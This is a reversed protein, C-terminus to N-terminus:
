RRSIFEVMRQIEDTNEKNETRRDPLPLTPDSLFIYSLAQANWSSCLLTYEALKSSDIITFKNFAKCNKFLVNLVQAM